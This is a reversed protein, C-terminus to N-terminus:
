YQFIQGPYTKYFIVLKLIFIIDAEWKFERLNKIVLGPVKRTHWGAVNLHEQWALVCKM